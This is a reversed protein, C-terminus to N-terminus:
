IEKYFITTACPRRDPYLAYNPIVGVRQWGLRAYIAEAPSGTATDLCLLTKGRRHAEREAADMLRRALGLGRARRHVLLKGIDGRHPQNPMQEIRVYVCGAIKGEHRAALLVTGGNEVDAAIKRWYARAVDDSLPSMFSVSAGGEVCDRLVDALAPIAAHIKDRDLIEIM